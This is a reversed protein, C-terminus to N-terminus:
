RSAASRSAQLSACCDPCECGIAEEGAVSAPPFTTPRTLLHNNKAEARKHGNCQVHGCHGMNSTSPLPTEKSCATPYLHVGKDLTDTRNESGMYKRRNTGDQSYYVYKSLSNNM